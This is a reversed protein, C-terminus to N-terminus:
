PYELDRGSKSQAERRKKSVTEDLKPIEFQGCRGAGVLGGVGQAAFM